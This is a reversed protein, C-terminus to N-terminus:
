AGDSMGCDPDNLMGEILAVTGFNHHPLGTERLRAQHYIPAVICVPHGRSQLGRAMVVFPELDGGSGFTALIVM